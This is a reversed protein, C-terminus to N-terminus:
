PHSTSADPGPGAMSQSEGLLNQRLESPVGPGAYMRLFIDYLLQSNIYPSQEPGPSLQKGNVTVTFGRGPIWDGTVTDGKHVQVVTGYMQGVTGVENILQKFEETTSVLKFDNIFYRSIVPGPIDRLVHLYIRKAGPMKVMADFSHTAQTLYIGSVDTKFYGRKRFGVGNLVLKQGGVDATAPLTFGEVTPVDARSPLAMGLLMLVSLLRLHPLKM